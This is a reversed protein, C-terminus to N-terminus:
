QNLARGTEYWNNGDFVATLADCKNPDPTLPFVGGSLKLNEPWSMTHGGTEDQCIILTLGQGLSPNAISSSTISDQLTLRITNGASANFTMPNGFAAVAASGAVVPSAPGRSGPLPSSGPGFAIWGLLLVLVVTVVLLAALLPRHDPRSKM